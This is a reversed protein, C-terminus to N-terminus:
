KLDTFPDNYHTLLKHCKNSLETFLWAMQRREEGDKASEREREARGAKWM